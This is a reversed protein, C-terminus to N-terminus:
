RVPVVKLGLAATTDAEVGACDGSFTHGGTETTFDKGRVWYRVSYIASCITHDDSSAREVGASVVAGEARPWRELMWAKWAFAGLGILLMGASIFLFTKGAPGIWERAGEPFIRM